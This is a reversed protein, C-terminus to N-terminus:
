LYSSCSRCSRYYRYHIVYESILIFLMSSSTLSHTLSHTLQNGACVQEYSPRYVTGGTYGVQTRHVGEVRQFALELGWFCGGGFTAYVQSQVVQQHQQQSQKQKILSVAGRSRLHSPTEVVPSIWQLWRHGNRDTKIYLAWCSGDMTSYFTRELCEQVIQAYKHICMTLTYIYTHTHTHTHRHVYTHICLNM